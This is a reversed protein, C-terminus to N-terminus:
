QHEDGATTTQEAVVWPQPPTAWMDGLHWRVRHNYVVSHQLPVLHVRKAITWSNWGLPLYFRRQGFQFEQFGEFFHDLEGLTLEVWPQVMNDCKILLFRSVKGIVVRQTVDDLIM